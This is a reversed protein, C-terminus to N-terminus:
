APKPQAYLEGLDRGHELIVYLFHEPIVFRAVVSNLLEGFRVAIQGAPEVAKTVFRNTFDIFGVGGHRKLYGELVM